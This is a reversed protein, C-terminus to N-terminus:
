GTTTSRLLRTSLETGWGTAYVIIAVAAVLGAILAYELTELGKEDKLFSTVKHM